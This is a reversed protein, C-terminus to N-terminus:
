VYDEKWVSSSVWKWTKGGSVEVQLALGWLVTRQSGGPLAGYAVVHM